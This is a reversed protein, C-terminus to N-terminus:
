ALMMASYKWKWPCTNEVTPSPATMLRAVSEPLKLRSIADVITIAATKAGGSATVLGTVLYPFIGPLILKRWKAVSSLKFVAAAEKLDTPIAIAGAIVNFLIYWQTGLLLLIVSAVGLGSGLRILVLLV